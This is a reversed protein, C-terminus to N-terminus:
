SDTNKRCRYITGISLQIKRCFAEWNLDSSYAGAIFLPQFIINAFWKIKPQIQM